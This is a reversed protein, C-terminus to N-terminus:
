LNKFRGDSYPPFCIEYFSLDTHATWQMQEWIDVNKTFGSSDAQVPYIIRKQNKDLIALSWTGSIYWEITKDWQLVEQLPTSYWSKVRIIGLDKENDGIFSYVDCEVWEKVQITEIYQIPLKVWDCTFYQLPM